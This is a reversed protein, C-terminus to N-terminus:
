IFTIIQKFPNMVISGHVKEHNYQMLNSIWNPICGRQWQSGNIWFAISWSYNYWKPEIVNSTVLKILFPKERTQTIQITSFYTLLLKLISQTFLALYPTKRTWISSFVSWFFSWMQVSKVWHHRDCNDFAHLFDLFNHRFKRERLYDQSCNLTRLIICTILRVILVQELVNLSKSKLFM